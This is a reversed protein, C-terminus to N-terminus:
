KGGNTTPHRKKKKKELMITAEQPLYREVGRESHKTEQARGKEGENEPAVSRENSYILEM